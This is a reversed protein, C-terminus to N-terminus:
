GLAASIAKVWPWVKEVGLGALCWLPAYPLSIIGRFAWKDSYHWPCRNFKTLILGLILQVVYFAAGYAIARGYWPWESVRIAVPPFLFAVLGYVPMMWLSAQGKLGWDRKTVLEKAGGFVVQAVMGLIGFSIFSIIM